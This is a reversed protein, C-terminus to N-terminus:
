TNHGIQYHNARSDRAQHIEEQLGDILRQIEAVNEEIRDLVYETRTDVQDSAKM